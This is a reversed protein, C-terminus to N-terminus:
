SVQQIISRDKALPQTTLLSDERMRWHDQFHVDSRAAMAMNIIFGTFEDWEMANDGNVDVQHFLEVLDAVTEIEQKNFTATTLDQSDERLLKAEANKEQEDKIKKRSSQSSGLQFRQTAAFANKKQLTHNTLLAVLLLSSIQRKAGRPDSLSSFCLLSCCYLLSMAESRMETM